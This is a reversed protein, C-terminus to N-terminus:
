LLHNTTQKIFNVTLLKEHNLYNIIFKKIVASVIQYLFSKKKKYHQSLLSVDDTFITVSIHKKSYM